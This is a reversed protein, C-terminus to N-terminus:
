RSENTPDEGRSLEDWDVVADPARGPERAAASADTTVPEFRVTQYKKTAGPWRTTTVVILIGAVAMIVSATLALYPWGTTASAEVASAVSDRGAIGTAATVAAASAHAPDSVALYASLFVSAGILVELAGLVARIVPGAITLAGALAFGALALATIAPAAISGDVEIREAVGGSVTVDVTGWVRTWALLALTSAFLVTVILLLRLRKGAHSRPVAPEAPQATTM